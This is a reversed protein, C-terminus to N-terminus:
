NKPDIPDAGADDGADVPSAAPASNGIGTLERTIQEVTDEGYWRGDMEVMRAETQMPKGLFTYDIQVTAVGADDRATERAKISALTQNINMGYLALVEKIGALAIGAKALGQDFSLGHVADLTPLDLHRATNVAIGIGRRALERDALNVGQLWGGLATVTEVAQKKQAASMEDNENIAQSLFGQGMIVFMPLQAAIETEFKVLLPELESYLRAEADTATLRSMYEAYEAQDGAEFPESAKKKWEERMLDLNKPPVIVQVAELLRDERLRAAFAEIAAAPDATQREIAAQSAPTSADKDGCAVLGLALLGTCALLVIRNM